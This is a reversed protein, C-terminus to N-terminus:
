VVELAKGLFSRLARCLSSSTGATSAKSIEIPGGLTFGYQNPRFPNKQGQSQLWQRADPAWNRLFEFATGHFQNSGAKTTV